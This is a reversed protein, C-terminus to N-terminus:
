MENRYFNSTAAVWWVEVLSAYRKQIDFYNSRYILADSSKMEKKKFVSKFSSSKHEKKYRSQIKFISQTRTNRPAVYIWAQGPLKVIMECQLALLALAPPVNSSKPFFFFAVISLFLNEVTYGQFNVSFQSSLAPSISVRNCGPSFVIVHSIKLGTLHSVWKGTGLQFKVEAIVALVKGM